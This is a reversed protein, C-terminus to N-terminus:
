WSLCSGDVRNQQLLGIVVHQFETPSLAQLQNLDDLNTMLSGDMVKKELDHRQGIVELGMNYRRIDLLQTKKETLANQAAAKAEVLDSLEDNVNQLNRETLKIPTNNFAAIAQALKAEAISKAQTYDLTAKIYKKLKKELVKLTHGPGKKKGGTPKLNPYQTKLATINGETESKSETVTELNRTQLDVEEQAMEVALQEPLPSSALLDAMKAQLTNLRTQRALIDQDFQEIRATQQNVDSIDSEVQQGVDEKAQDLAADVTADNIYYRSRLGHM